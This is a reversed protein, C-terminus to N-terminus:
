KVTIKFMYDNASLFGTSVGTKDHSFEITLDMRGVSYSGGSYDYTICVTVNFDTFSAGNQVIQKIAGQIFDNDDLSDVIERIKISDLRETMNEVCFDIDGGADTSTVNETFLYDFVANVALQTLSDDFNRAANASPRVNPASKYPDKATCTDFMETATSFGDYINQYYFKHTVGSKVATRDGGDNSWYGSNKMSSIRVFQFGIPKDPKLVGTKNLPRKNVGDWGCDSYTHNFTIEFCAGADDVACANFLRGDCNGEQWVWLGWDTYVSYRFPQSYEPFLNIPEGDTGYTFHESAGNEVPNHDYRLYHIWMMSEDWDDRSAIWDDIAAADPADCDWVAHLEMDSNVVTDSTVLKGSGDKWGVFRKRTGFGANKAQESDINKPKVAASDGLRAGKDLLVIDPAFVGFYWDLGDVDYTIACVSDGGNLARFMDTATNVGNGGDGEFAYHLSWEALPCEREGGDSAWFSDGTTTLDVLKFSLTGPMFKGATTGPRNTSSNWGFDSYIKDLEIEFMAGASDIMGPYFMRGTGSGQWAWLGWKGYVDSNIPVRSDVYTDSSEDYTPLNMIYEEGVDHDARRYHIIVPLPSGEMVLSGKLEDMMGDFEAGSLTPCDWIPFLEVDSNIVTNATYVNGDADKWGGFTKVEGFGIEAAKAGITPQKYETGLKTGTKVVALPPPTIDYSRLAKGITYTVTSYEPVPVNPNEPEVYKRYAAALQAFTRNEFARIRSPTMNVGMAAILNVIDIGYNQEIFVRFEGLTKYPNLKVAEAFDSIMDAATEASGMLELYDDLTASLSRDSAYGSILPRLFANIQADIDLTETIRNGDVAYSKGFDDEDSPMMAKIANRFAADLRTVSQGNETVDFGTGDRTLTYSAAGGSVGGKFSSMEVTYSNKDSFTQGAGVAAEATVPAASPTGKQCATMFVCCVALMAAMVVTLVRKKM